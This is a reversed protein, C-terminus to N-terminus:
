GGGVVVCGVLFIALMAIPEGLPMLPEGCAESLVAQLAEAEAAPGDLQGMATPCARRPKLTPSSKIAVFYRGGAGRVDGVGQRGGCEAPQRQHSTLFAVDAPGARAEVSLPVVCAAASAASRAGGESQGSRPPRATSSLAPRVSELTLADADAEEDSDLPAEM